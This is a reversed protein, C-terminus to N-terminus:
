YARAILIEEVGRAGTFICAGISAPQAMPANRITLKLAKLQAEVKDLADGTPKSWPARVWGKFAAGAADDDEVAGFFAKLGEVDSVDSVIAAELRAKAEDFLVKQIEVLL